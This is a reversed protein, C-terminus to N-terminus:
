SESVPYFVESRIQRKRDVGREVLLDRLEHIMAGNGVLYFVPRDLGPLADIVHRTIRGNVGRWGPSPRSLCVHYAFRESQAALLELRDQWYVDTESRLGWYLLVRGREHEAPRRLTEEIMPLAAAIGSGTAAHVVDGPHLLENTFFGMPGTFHVESDPRLGAFFSSGAGGDVLKVLLEFGDHRSSYSAISYSRRSDGQADLRLSVFQGARYTIEPPHSMALDLSLVQPALEVVSRM